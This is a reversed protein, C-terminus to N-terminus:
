SIQGSPAILIANFQTRNSRPAAGRLKGSHKFAASKATPAFVVVEAGEHELFDVLRNLTLSIGDKIYDYVGTFLAIRLPAGGINKPFDPHHL